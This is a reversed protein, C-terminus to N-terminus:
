RRLVWFTAAIQLDLLGRTKALNLVKMHKFSKINNYPNSFSKGGQIIIRRHINIKKDQLYECKQKCHVYPKIYTWFGSYICGEGDFM